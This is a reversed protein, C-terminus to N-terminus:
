AASHGAASHAVISTRSTPGHKSYSLDAPGMRHVLRRSEGAQRCVAPVTGSHLRLLGPLARLQRLQKRARSAKKADEVYKVAQAEPASVSLLPADAALAAPASRLAVPILPVALALRELLRRRSLPPPSSM